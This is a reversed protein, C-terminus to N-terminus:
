GEVGLVIDGARVGAAEAPSGSVVDRMIPPGRQAGIALTVGIGAEGRQQGEVARSDMYTSNPDGLADLMGKAAAQGVPWPAVRNAVKALYAEYRVAFQAWDRDPDRSSRVSMLELMDVDLPSVGQDISADQIGKLAGDILTGSDVPDVYTSLIESYLEFLNAPTLIDVTADTRVPVNRFVSRDDQPARGGGSSGASSPLLSTLDPASMGGACGTLVLSGLVLARPLWGIRKSGGM